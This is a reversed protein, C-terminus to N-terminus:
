GADHDSYFVSGFGAYVDEAINIMGQCNPGVIGIGYEDAIAALEQQLEVGRGGIESYGSSFIIAYPVGKRGCQRLTEAVRSANILVMVLDPAEPLAEVSAHCKIGLIEPYKPNVPYIAGRYHHALLHQLPQGSITALDRSAGVIAISRPNFLRELDKRM